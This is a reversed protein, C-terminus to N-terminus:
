VKIKEVFNFLNKQIQFGFSAFTLLLSNRNFRKGRM